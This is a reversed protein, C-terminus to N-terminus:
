YEDRGNNELEEGYKKLRFRKYLFMFSKQLKRRMKKVAEIRKKAQHKDYKHVLDIMNLMIIKKM